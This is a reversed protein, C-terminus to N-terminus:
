RGQIIEQITQDLNYKPRWGTTTTIKTLDPVRRQMDEFGEPFAKSYPVQVIKSKSDTLAIVKQALSMISIEGIGGINYVAGVSEEIALLTLVASIADKVNCFVRSQKGDGFVELDEGSIAKQVFKPVVMGYKGTQRPGITNFFRV